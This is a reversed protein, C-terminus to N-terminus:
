VFVFCDDLEVITKTRNHLRKDAFKMNFDPLMAKSKLLFPSSTFFSNVVSDSRKRDNLFIVSKRTKSCKLFIQYVVFAFM